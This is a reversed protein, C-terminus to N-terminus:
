RPAGVSMVSGLDCDSAAEGGLQAAALARVADAQAPALRDMRLWTRPGSERVLAVSANRLGRERFGELAAQAAAQSDHLGLSYGGEQGGPLTVAEFSMRLRTLEDRRANATERSYIPGVFVAYQAGSTRTDRRWTRAPLVGALTREAGEVAANDDLPGVELCTLAVAAPSAIGTTAAAPAPASAPVPATMSPREGAAASAAGVPRPAGPLPPGVVAASAAEALAAATAAPSLVRLATPRLQRELRGPDRETAPALGVVGFWGWRWGAYGLNALLAAVVFWRLLTM